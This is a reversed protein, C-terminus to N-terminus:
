KVPGDAVIPCDIEVPVEQKETDVTGYLAMFPYVVSQMVGSKEGFYYPTANTVTLSKVTSWDIPDFDDRIPAIVSKGDQVWRIITAPTATPLSKDRELKRWLLSIKALKGHNGFDIRCGGRVGTGLFDVGDVSRILFVGRSYINTTLTKDANQLVSNRSTSFILLDSRNPKSALDSTKIGLKPLFDTALRLMQSEDPVGESIAMDEAAQDQYEICGITPFIELSRGNSVFRAKKPDRSARTFMNTRDKDTFPGLAFLNSIVGPAFGAPLVRYVWLTAPLTNTPAKWRVDLDSRQFSTGLQNLPLNQSSGVACLVQFIVLFVTTKM